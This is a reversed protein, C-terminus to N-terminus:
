TRAQAQQTECRPLRVTFCSGAGPRSDVSISGHMAEVLSRTLALGIGTGETRSRERGLRNFPQFLQALQAEDMGLGDDEVVLDLSDAAPQARLRVQGGPRNYKIANSVLNQVVQRLRTADARVCTHPPMPEIHVSVELRQALTGLDRSAAALLTAVDVAGLQLDLAGSEIRSIDLLDNVLALLHKGASDIHQLWEHQRPELPTLRILL